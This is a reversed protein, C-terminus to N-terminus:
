HHKDHSHSGPKKTQGQATMSKGASGPIEEEPLPYNRRDRIAAALRSFNNQNPWEGGLLKVFEDVKFRASVQGSKKAAPKLTLQVEKTLEGLISPEKSLLHEYGGVTGFVRRLDGHEMSMAMEITGSSCRFPYTLTAPGRLQGAKEAREFLSEMTCM